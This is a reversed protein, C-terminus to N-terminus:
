GLVYPVSYSEDSPVYTPAHLAYSAESEAHVTASGGTQHARRHHQTSGSVHLRGHAFLSYKGSARRPVDM